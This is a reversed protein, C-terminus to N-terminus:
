MPRKPKRPEPAPKPDAAAEDGGDLDFEEEHLEQQSAAANTHADPARGAPHDTHIEHPVKDKLDLGFGQVPHEGDAAVATGDRVVEEPPKRAEANVIEDEEQEDNVIHRTNDYKRVVWKPYEHGEHLGIGQERLLVGIHQVNEASAELGLEACVAVVFKLQHAHSPDLRAAHDQQVVGRIAEAAEKVGLKRM